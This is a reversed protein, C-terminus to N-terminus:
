SGPPLFEHLRTEVKLRGAWERLYAHDLNRSIKLIEEVDLQDKRRFAILKLLILDEPALVWVERGSMPVARRRRIASELFPGRVLFLDIEWVSREVFRTAKVKGFGAITDVFGKRHEDPVDFGHSGLASLLEQLRRDDAVIALDADYTPRPVGFSRVAFGGMIAYPIGLRDIVAIAEMLLSQIPLETV